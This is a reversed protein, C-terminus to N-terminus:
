LSCVRCRGGGGFLDGNVDAGPPIRGRAFESALEALSAPWTDRDPSRFTHGYRAELAAGEDYRKRHYRWLNWWEGLRQDYCKGCDTRSPIELCREALFKWVREIGWGWRRFPFDCVVDDGYIGEREEEDARLGVYLISGPPLAQMYEITPEIKLIRTCFRARHNPIMGQQEILEDLTMGAGLRKIPKGLIRELNDLHAHLEDLEDGTPTCILEYPRPEREHLAIALCTSDKGGSLGIVHRPDSTESM